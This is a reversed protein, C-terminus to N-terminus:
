MVMVVVVVVVVINDNGMPLIACIKRIDVLLSLIRPVLLAVHLLIWVSSGCINPAVSFFDPREPSRAGPIQTGRIMTIIRILICRQNKAKIYTNTKGANFPISIPVAQETRL